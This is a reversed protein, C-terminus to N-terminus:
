INLLNIFRNLNLLNQIEQVLNFFDIVCLTCKAPQRYVKFLFHDHVQRSQKLFGVFTANQTLQRKGSTSSDTDVRPSPKPLFFTRWFNIPPFGCPRSDFKIVTFVKKVLSYLYLKSKQWVKHQQWYETYKM